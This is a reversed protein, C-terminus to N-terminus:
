SFGQCPALSSTTALRVNCQLRAPLWGARGLRFCLRLRTKRPAPTVRAAFRVQFTKRGPSSPEAVDLKIVVVWPPCTGAGRQISPGQLQVVEWPRHPLHRTLRVRHQKGAAVARYFCFRLATFGAALEVLRRAAERVRRRRDFLVLAMERTALARDAEEEAHLEVETSPESQCCLGAEGIPRSKQLISSATGARGNAARAFRVSCLCARGATVCVRRRLTTM